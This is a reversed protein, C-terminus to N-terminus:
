VVLGQKELEGLIDGLSLQRLRARTPFGTIADWGRLVYYESKMEEFM